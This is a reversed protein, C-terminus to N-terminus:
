MTGKRIMFKLRNSDQIHTRVFMCIPKVEVPKAKVLKSEAKSFSRAFKLYLLFYNLGLNPLKIAGNSLHLMETGFSIENRDSHYSFDLRFDVLANVHSGIANNLQNTEVNYIRQVFGLGLGSQGSFDSDRLIFFNGVGM